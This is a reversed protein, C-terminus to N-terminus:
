AKSDLPSPVPDATGKAAPDGDIAIRNRGAKKARYLASDARHILDDESLDPDLTSVGVSVTVKLTLEPSDLNPFPHTEVSTRLKDATVRAMELDTEPLLVVFEDGGYRCVVDVDRLNSRLLQGLDRLVQDGQLHGYQDNIQKFTDVDLFIMSTPRSYRSARRVEAALRGVFYHRNYTQTLSDMIAQRKSERTLRLNDISLALIGGIDHLV